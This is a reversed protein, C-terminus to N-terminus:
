QPILNSSTIKLVAVVSRGFDIDVVPVVFLCVFKRVSANVNTQILFNSSIIMIMADAPQYTTAKWLNFAAQIHKRVPM